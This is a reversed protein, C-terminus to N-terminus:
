LTVENLPALTSHSYHQHYQTPPIGDRYDFTQIYIFMYPAGGM